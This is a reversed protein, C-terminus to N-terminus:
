ELSNPELWDLEVVVTKVSGEIRGGVDFREKVAIICTGDTAVNCLGTRIVSTRRLLWGVRVDHGKIIM